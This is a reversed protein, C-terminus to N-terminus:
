QCPFSLGSALASLVGNTADRNRGNAQQGTLAGALGFRARTPQTRATDGVRLGSSLLQMLLLVKFPDLGGRSGQHSYFADEVQAITVPGKAIFSNEPVCHTPCRDTFVSLSPQLVNISNIIKGHPAACNPRGCPCSPGLCALINSPYAILEEAGNTRAINHIKRFLDTDSWDGKIPVTARIISRVRDFGYTEFLTNLLTNIELFSYYKSRENFTGRHYGKRYIPLTYVEQSILQEVDAESSADELVKKIAVWFQHM